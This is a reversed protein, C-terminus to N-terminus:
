APGDVGSVRTRCAALRGIYGYVLEDPALGLEARIADREGPQAPRFRATDIGNYVVVVRSAPLGADTWAQRMYDSVALFRNVQTAASFITPDLKERYRGRVYRALGTRIPPPLHLHSVVPLRLERGLCVARPYQAPDHAYLLNIDSRRPKCSREAQGEVVLVDAFSSWEALLDGARGATVQIQWGRRALGRCIELECLEGGFSHLMESLVAVVAM